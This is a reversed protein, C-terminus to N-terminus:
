QMKEKALSQADIAEQETAYHGITRVKGNYICARWKIKNSPIYYIYPFKSYKQKVRNGKNVNDFQTIYQLNDLRNNIRSGDIHDTILGEPRKGMFTSAVIRHTRETKQEGHRCLSVHFYGNTGAYQKLIVGKINANTSLLRDLSKVRGLNSAEYLGEYNPISKWIENLM